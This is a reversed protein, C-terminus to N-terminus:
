AFDDDLISMENEVFEMAKQFARARHSISNKVTQDLEGFTQEYGDPIFIPDYGFGNVGRPATTIRGAVEGRFVEIVEGNIAIAIACVFKARRNPNDGLEALIREIRATDSGAYRASLIGPANNLAEVELGSDDAFAPIDCYNNAALAKIAANEEFTKGNEEIEPFNKYANLGVVEVKQDKLLERYESLKHENATAAVIQAM